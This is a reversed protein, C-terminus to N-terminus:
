FRVSLQVFGSVEKERDGDFVRSGFLIGYAVDAQPGFGWRHEYAISGIPEADFGSQWTGGVTGTLAHVLSRRYRRWAVHEVVVAVTPTFIWEPSFYAVDTRSNTSYYLEVM